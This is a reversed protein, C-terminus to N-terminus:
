YIFRWKLLSQYSPLYKASANSATKSQQGGTDNLHLEQQVEEILGKALQLRRDLNPPVSDPLLTQLKKAEQELVQMAMLLKANSMPDSARTSASDGKDASLSDEVQHARVIPAPVVDQNSADVPLTSESVLVSLSPDITISTAM